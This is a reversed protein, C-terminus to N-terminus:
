LFYPFYIYIKKGGALIYFDLLIILIIDDVKILSLLLRGMYFLLM